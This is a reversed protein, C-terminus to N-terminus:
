DAYANTHYETIQGRAATVVQSRLEYSARLRIDENKSKLDSFIPNLADLVRLAM